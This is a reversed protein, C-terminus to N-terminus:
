GIKKCFELKGVQFNANGLRGPMSTRFTNEEWHKSLGVKEEHIIPAETDNAPEGAYAVTEESNTNGVYFEDAKDGMVGFSEEADENEDCKPSLKDSREQRSGEGADYRAFDMKLPHEKRLKELVSMISDARMELDESHMLDDTMSLFPRIFEESTEAQGAEEERQQDEKEEEEEYEEEEDEEEEKKAGEEEEEEEEE